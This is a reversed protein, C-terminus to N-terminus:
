ATSQNFLFHMLYVQGHKYSVCSDISTLMTSSGLVTLSLYSFLYMKYSKFPLNFHIELKLDAIIDM